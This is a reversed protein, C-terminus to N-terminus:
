DSVIAGLVDMRAARRAPLVAAGVGALAAIVAVVGLQSVPITFVSLGEDELASVMAWGFTIGIALGLTLWSM